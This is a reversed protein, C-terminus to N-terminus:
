NTEVKRGAERRGWGFEVFHKRNAAGARGRVRGAGVRGPADKLGPSYKIVFGAPKAVSEAASTFPSDTAM